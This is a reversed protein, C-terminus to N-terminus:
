KKELITQMINGLKEFKKKKPLPNIFDKPFNQDKAPHFIRFKIHYVVKFIAEKHTIIISSSKNKPKKNIKCNNNIFIIDKNINDAENPLSNKSSESINNNLKLSKKGSSSKREDHITELLYSDKTTKTSDKNIEAFNTDNKEENQCPNSHVFVEGFVKYFYEPDEKENHIIAGNKIYNHSNKIVIEKSFCNGM